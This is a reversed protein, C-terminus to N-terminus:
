QREAVPSRVAAPDLGLFGVDTIEIDSAKRPKVNNLLVIQYEGDAPVEIAATVFPGSPFMVPTAAWQLQKNMLGLVAGGRRVVGRAAVRTGKPLLFFKSTAAQGGGHLPVGELRLRTGDVKAPPYLRDWDGEHLPRIDLHRFAVDELLDLQSVQVEAASDLWEVLPEALTQYLRKSRWDPGLRLWLPLPLSRYETVAALQRLCPRQDSMIELGEFRSSTATVVPFLVQTEGQERNLPATVVRSHDNFPDDSRYAVRMRLAPGQCRNPDISAALYFGSLAIEDLRVKPGSMSTLPGSPRLLIRDDSQSEVLEIPQRGASLYRDFLKTLHSQQYSRALVLALVAMILAFAPIAFARLSTEVAWHLGQSESAALALQRGRLRDLGAALTRQVLQVLASLVIVGALWYFLELHFFHRLSFQLASLFGFFTLVIVYFFSMVPRRASIIGSAIAVLFIGCGPIFFYSRLISLYAFSPWYPDNNFDLNLTRILAAYVRILVDAPFNLGYHVLLRFSYSDYDRGLSTLQTFAETSRFAFAQVLAAIDSDSYRHGIDYVPTNLGLPKDFPVTLGLLAVHPLAGGGKQYVALAPFAGILFALGFAGGAILIPLTKRFRTWLLLGALLVMFFIPAIMLDARFGVGIGAVLGAFAASTYFRRWYGLSAVLLGAFFLFGLIFPAKSYDRIHGIMNLNAPSLTSLVAIVIAWPMSVFLRSVAYIAASTLGALIAALLVLATWSVGALSWVLSASKLLYFSAAQFSGLPLVHKEVQAPLTACDFPDRKLDLFDKLDSLAPNTSLGAPNIFEGTCAAVVAPAYEQQYFGGLGTKSVYYASFVMALALLVLTVVFDLPRLTM